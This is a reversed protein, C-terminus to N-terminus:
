PGTPRLVELILPQAPPAGEAFRAAGALLGLAEELGRGARHHLTLLPEGAAVEDGIRVHVTAGVGLDIAEGKRRRGGGLAVVAQGVREADLAHLVGTQPARWLRQDPSVALADLAGADGGQAEVFTVFREFARGDDLAAAVEQPTRVLGRSALVEFALAVALARLEPPGGGRLSAVAERVELAHGVAEGLPAQMNSIVARVHRDAHVGIAVMSQALARAEAPGKMFAGSGVKVDLVISQAGGALKKSMISSAILPLSAVTGTADRLAYLLGDAPVLTPTQGTLALGIRAVQALLAASTLEARFGPIAELKDITGGTHGLGRGSMKAVQAGLSALLPAVVLTTKDGVGGTSHKDVPHPLHSLDFQEGSAAMVATLDATEQETMGRWVVAMLWAAVQYDPVEGGMYARLFAELDARTHALGDRKAAIMAPASPTTM